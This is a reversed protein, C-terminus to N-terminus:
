HNIVIVDNTSEAADDPERIVINVEGNFEYIDSEYSGFLEEYEEAINEVFEWVDIIEGDEFKIKSLEM